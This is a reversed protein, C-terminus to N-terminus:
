PAERRKLTLSVQGERGDRYLGTLDFPGDCTQGDFAVAAVGEFAAAVQALPRPDVLRVHLRGTVPFLAAREVDVPGGPNLTLTM